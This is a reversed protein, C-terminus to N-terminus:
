RFSLKSFLMTCICGVMKELADMSVQATSTADLTVGKAKCVVSKSGDAHELEYAYVKSAIAVLKTIRDGAAVEDELKGLGHGVLDGLLDEDDQKTFM